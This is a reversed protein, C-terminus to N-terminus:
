TMQMDTLNLERVLELPVFGKRDWARATYYAQIM